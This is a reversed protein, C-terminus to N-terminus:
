KNAEQIIKYGAKPQKKDLSKVAGKNQQEWKVKDQREIEANIAKLLDEDNKFERNPFFRNKIENVIGKFAGGKIHNWVKVSSPVSEGYPLHNKEAYELNHKKIDIDQQVQKAQLYMQSLNANAVAQGIHAAPNENVRHAQPTSMTAASAPSGAALVPNLGAKKMDAVRRQVANDERKWITNKVSYDYAMQRDFFEKNQQRQRRSGAAGMAGGGLAASGGIIAGALLASM